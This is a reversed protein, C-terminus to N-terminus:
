RHEQSSDRPPQYSERHQGVVNRLYLDLKARKLAQTKRDGKGQAPFPLGKAQLHCGHEKPGPYYDYTIKLDLTQCWAMAVEKVPTDGPIPECAEEILQFIAEPPPTAM